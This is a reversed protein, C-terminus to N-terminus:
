APVEAVNPVRWEEVRVARYAANARGWAAYARAIEQHDTDPVAVFAEWRRREAQRAAEVAAYREAVTRYTKM